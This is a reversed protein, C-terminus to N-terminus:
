GVADRKQEVADVRFRLVTTDLKLVNMIRQDEEYNGQVVARRGCSWSVPRVSRHPPGRVPGWSTWNSPATHTLEDPNARVSGAALLHGRISPPATGPSDVGNVMAAPADRANGTPWSM